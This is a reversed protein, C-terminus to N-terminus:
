ATKILSDIKIVSIQRNEKVPFTNSVLIKKIGAKRLKQKADGVFLGHAAICWIEKAGHQKLLAAAKFLTTGTSIMDDVILITRGSVNKTFTITIKNETRVKKMSAFPARLQKAIMAARKAGGRDPSIVLFDKKPLKKALFPLVSFEKYSLYNRLRESHIDFIVIPLHVQRLISCVVAGSIPEGSHYQKDQRAYSLFPIIIKKIKAGARKAADVLFLFELINTPTISSVIAVPKKKINEKIRLFLEGEPFYNKEVPVAPIKLHKVSDTTLYTLSTM